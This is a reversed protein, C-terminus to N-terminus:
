VSNQHMNHVTALSEIVVLELIVLKTTSKASFENTSLYYSIGCELEGKQVRLPKCKLLKQGGM